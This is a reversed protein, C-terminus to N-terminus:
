YIDARVTALAITVLITVVAKERSGTSAEMGRLVLLWTEWGM